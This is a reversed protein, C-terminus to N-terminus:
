QKIKQMKIIARTEIRLSRKKRKKTYIYSNAVRFKPM